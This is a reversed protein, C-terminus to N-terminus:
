GAGERRAILRAGLVERVLDVADAEPVAVLITVTEDPDCGVKVERGAHSAQVTLQTGYGRGITDVHWLAGGGGVFVDGEAALRWRVPVPVYCDAPPRAALGAAFGVTYGDQWLAEGQGTAEDATQEGDVAPWAPLVQELATM